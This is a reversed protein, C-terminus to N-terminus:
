NSSVLRRYLELLMRNRESQPSITSRMKSREDALELKEYESLIAPLLKQHGRRLLASHLNGLLAKAKMQDQQAAERLAKAYLAATPM